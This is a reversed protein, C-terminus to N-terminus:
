CIRKLWCALPRNEYRDNICLTFIRSLLGAADQLKENKGLDGVIDDQLGENFTVAGKKSADKDAKIGFLRLYKGAVYLCQITWGQLHGGSYGKILINTMEKWADYVRGWGSNPAMAEIDLIEGAVKWFAAYIDVWVQIEAKNHSRATGRMDKLIVDHIDRSVNTSDIYNYFDLLRNPNEPPPVPTMTKGLLTGDGMAQAQKFESLITSM